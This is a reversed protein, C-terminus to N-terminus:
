PRPTSKSVGGDVEILALLVEEGLRRADARRDECLLLTPEPPRPTIGLGLIVLLVLRRM